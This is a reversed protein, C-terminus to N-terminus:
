SLPTVEIPLPDLVLGYRCLTSALVDFSLSYSCSLSLLSFLPIRLSGGRTETLILGQSGPVNAEALLPSDLIVDRAYEVNYGAVSETEAEPLDFPARNTKAVHSIFFMVLIPFLPIGSWIQKQSKVSEKM